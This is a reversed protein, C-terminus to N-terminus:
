LVLILHNSVLFDNRFAQCQAAKLMVLLVYAHNFLAVLTSDTKIALM